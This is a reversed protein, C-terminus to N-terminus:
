KSKKNIKNVVFFFSFFLTGALTSDAAEEIMFAKSISRNDIFEFLIHVSLILFTFLLARKFLLM